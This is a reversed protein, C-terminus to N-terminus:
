NCYCFWAIRFNDSNVILTKNRVQNTSTTFTLILEYTGSELAVHISQGNNITREVGNGFNVTMSTDSCGCNDSAGQFSYQMVGVHTPIFNKNYYEYADIAFSAVGLACGVGLTGVCGAVTFAGSLALSIEDNYKGFWDGNTIVNETISKTIGLLLNTKWNYGLLRKFNKNKELSALLSGNGTERMLEIAFDYQYKFMGAKHADVMAVRLTNLYSTTTVAGELTSGGFTYNKLEKLSSEVEPEFRQNQIKVVSKGTKTVKGTSNFEPYKSSSYVMNMDFTFDTEDFNSIILEFEDTVIRTPSFSSSNDFFALSHNQVGASDVISVLYNERLFAKEIGDEDVMLFNSEIQNSIEGKNNIWAMRVIADNSFKQESQNEEPPFDEFENETPLCGFLVIAFVTLLLVHVEKMKLTTSISKRM